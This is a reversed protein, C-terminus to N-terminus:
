DEFTVENFHNFVCGNNFRLEKRIFNNCFFLTKRISESYLSLKILRDFSILPSCLKLDLVKKNIWKIKRKKLPISNNGCVLIFIYLNRVFIPPRLHFYQTELLFIHHRWHFYPPRCNFYQPRCHFHPPRWRFYPTKFSFLHDGICIHTDGIFIHPDVILINPDGIFINPRWHFYQTELM